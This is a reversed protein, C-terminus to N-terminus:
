TSKRPACENCPGWITQKAGKCNNCFEPVYCTSCGTDRCDECNFRDPCEAVFHSLDDDDSAIIDSNDDDNSDGPCEPEDQEDDEDDPFGLEPIENNVAEEQLWIFNM